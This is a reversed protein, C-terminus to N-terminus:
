RFLRTFCDVKVLKEVYLNLHNVSRFVLQLKTQLNFLRTRLRDM